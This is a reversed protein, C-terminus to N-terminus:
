LKIYFSGTKMLICSFTQFMQVKSVDTYKLSVALVVNWPSDDEFNSLANFSSCLRLVLVLVYLETAVAVLRYV